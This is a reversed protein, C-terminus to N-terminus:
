WSSKARHHRLNQAYISFKYVAIGDLTCGRVLIAALSITDGSTHLHDVRSELDGVM